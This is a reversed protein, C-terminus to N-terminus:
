DRAYTLANLVFAPNGKPKNWEERILNFMNEHDFRASKVAEDPRKLLQSPLGDCTKGAEHALWGAVSYPFKHSAGDVYDRCVKHLAELFQRHNKARTDIDAGYENLGWKCSWWIPDAILDDLEATTEAPVDPMQCEGEPIDPPNDKPSPIKPM